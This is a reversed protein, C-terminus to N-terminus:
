GKYAAKSMKWGGAKQQENWLRNYIGMDNILESHTGAEAVQGNEIVIIQDANRITKLRHAIVVVTKSRVLAQIAQQIYLENESDLSATAEDLLVIPADKLIARAISLRQKEGGSLSSGEESIVTDYGQPLRTIFSHCNASQAAQVVQEFMAKPNGVKINNLVTDNFLVVDQFVMSISAYLSDTAIERVDIGGIQISGSKVDWFRAILHAITSKGSGSVGVLATMSCPEVSFSIGSLVPRGDYQFHVNQFAIGFQQPTRSIIPEPLMPEELVEKVREGANSMYRLEALHAGAMRLPNYFRLSIILFILFVSVDLTGGFLLYSGLLLLGIFGVELVIAYSLIIPSVTAELKISEDSLQKMAQQMRAFKEGTQNYAKFLKIGHIYELLRSNAHSVMSLRRRSARNITRQSWILLPLALPVAVIMALGLRWDLWLLFLAVISPMAIAGVINSFLHTLIKEVEDVNNLLTHSIEGKDKRAFYGMPLKRLHEGLRLRTDRMLSAGTIMADLYGIVSCVAQLLFAVIMIGICLWIQKMDLPPHFLQHIVVILMGYPVSAFIMELVTFLAARRLKGLSGGTVARVMNLM